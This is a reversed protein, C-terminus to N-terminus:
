EGKYNDLKYNFRKLELCFEKSETWGKQYMIQGYDQMIYIFQFGWAVVIVFLSAMWFWIDSNHGNRRAPKNIRVM